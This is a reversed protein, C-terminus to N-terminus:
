KVKFYITIDYSDGDAAGDTTFTLDGTGGAGPDAFGGFHTYDNIGSGALVAATIDSARDFYAHVYNFGTVAYEIRQLVIKTGAAGKANTLTSLDVKAVASEGTGDSRNTFRYVYNGNQGEYVKISSVADAM